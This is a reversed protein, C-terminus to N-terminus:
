KRNSVTAEAVTKRAVTEKGSVRSSWVNACKWNKANKRAGSLGTLDGNESITQLAFEGSPQFYNLTLQM